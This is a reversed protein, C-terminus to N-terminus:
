RGAGSPTRFHARGIPELLYLWRVTRALFTIALFVFSVALLDVRARQIQHAVEALNVGRLFWGFLAIALLFILTVRIRNGM